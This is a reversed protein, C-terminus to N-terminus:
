IGTHHHPPPDGCCGHRCGRSCGASNHLFQLCAFLHRETCAAPAGVDTHKGARSHLLSLRRHISYSVAKPMFAMLVLSVRSLLTGQDLATRSNFSAKSIGHVRRTKRTRWLVGSRTLVRYDHYTCLIKWAVHACVLDPVFVEQGHELAMHPHSVEAPFTILKTANSTDFHLPDSTTPIIKGNGTNYKNPYDSKCICLCGLSPLRSVNM